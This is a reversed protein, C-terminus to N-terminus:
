SPLGELLTADVLLVRDDQRLVVIRETRGSGVALVWGGAQRDEGTAVTHAEIRVREEPSLVYEGDWSSIAGSAGLGALQDRQLGAGRVTVIDAGESWRRLELYLQFRERVTPSHGIGIAVLDDSASRTVAAYNPGMTEDILAFEAGNVVVAMLLAGVLIGRAYHHGVREVM